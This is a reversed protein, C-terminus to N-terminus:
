QDVQLDMLCGCGDNHEITSDMLGDIDLSRQVIDRKACLDRGDVM